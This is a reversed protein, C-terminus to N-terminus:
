TKSYSNTSKKSLHQTWSHGVYETINLDLNTIVGPSSVLAAMTRQPQVKDDTYVPRRKLPHNDWHLVSLICYFKFSFLTIEGNANRAHYWMQNADM